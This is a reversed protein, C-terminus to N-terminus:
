AAWLTNQRGGYANHWGGLTDHWGELPHYLWRFYRKGFVRWKAARRLCFAVTWFILPASDHHPQESESKSESEPSRIRESEPESESESEPDSVFYSIFLVKITWRTEATWAFFSVHCKTIIKAKM